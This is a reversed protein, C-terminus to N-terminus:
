KWLEKENTVLKVEDARLPRCHKWWDGGFSYFKVPKNNEEQITRLTGIDFSGLTQPEEESNWLKCLYQEEAVKDWDIKPEVITYDDEFDRLELNPTCIGGDALTFCDVKSIKYRYGRLNKIIKGARLAEIIAKDTLKM